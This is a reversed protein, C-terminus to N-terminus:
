EAPPPLMRRAQRLVGFLILGVIVAAVAVVVPFLWPLRESVPPAPPLEEVFDPNKAHLGLSARPLEETALFPLVREIDYSPRRADANGYYLEYSRRPAASFLLRRGLGWVEMGQVDLPPNDEDFITLRFYRSTSEQYTLVLSDGVFKRTDYAYIAIRRVSTHWEERDSSTELSVERYFNVDPVRIELRHSPLGEFGFTWTWM